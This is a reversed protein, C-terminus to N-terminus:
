REQCCIHRFDNSSLQCSQHHMCGRTLQRQQQEHLELVVRDLDLSVVIPMAFVGMSGVIHDIPILPVFVFGHFIMKLAIASEM